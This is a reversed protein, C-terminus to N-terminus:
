LIDNDFGLTKKAIYVPRNKVEMYSKAIYEGIIGLFILQIGGLLLIVCMLSAYGPIDKGFLITQFFIVLLYIFALSSILTGLITSLKLPKTSFNLIGNFAYKWQGFFKFKTVGAQRKEVKYEMYHTNFGVWSFLGKSFRSTEQMSVIAKVVYKKFMRFDSAGANFSQDSILNMVRYFSKKLFKMIFGENSYDSVMAVQDYEDNKELFELMELLYKPDQQLDADIICAYEATSSKLGAYLAADKGFNRSFSIVKVRNKDKNYITQLKEYTKDTSGDDIFILNYKIDKLTSNLIDYINNINDEENCAPIIVDLKM